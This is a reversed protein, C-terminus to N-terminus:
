IHMYTGTCALMCIYAYVYVYSFIVRERITWSGFLLDQSETAKTESERVVKGICPSWGFLHLLPHCKFPSLRYKAISVNCYPLIKWKYQVYGLSFFCRLSVLPGCGQPGSEEVTNISRFLVSTGCIAERSLAGFPLRHVKVFIARAKGLGRKRM